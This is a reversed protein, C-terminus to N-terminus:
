QSPFRHGSRLAEEFVAATLAPAFFYGQGFRAGAERVADLQRREEIGEIVAYLDLDTALQLISQVITQHRPNDKLDLTFSRDIKLSNLPLDHLYSLSSYGTGFDDLALKVGIRLLKEFQLWLSQDQDLLVNETIEIQFDAPPFSNEVLAASLLDWFLPDIFQRHSLNFNVCLDRASPFKRKWYGVTECVQRLCAVGIPIILGTEEAISLFVQPPILESKPPRWRLLAEFGIPAGSGLEVIPQYLVQFEQRILGSRLATELNLREVVENRMQQDFIAYSQRGQIKTASLATDADRLVEVSNRYSGEGLAIGIHVSTYIDRDLIHFRRGMAARIQEAIERVRALSQFSLLLIAFEASEHRSVWADRNVSEQLRQAVRVLLEDGAAHGLSDNVLRFADVELLLVAYPKRDLHFDQIAQDLRESFHVRNPLETLPDHRAQHILRDEIRKRETIDVVTGMILLNTAGELRQMSVLAIARSRHDRHLFMWESSDLDLLGLLLNSYREDAWGIEEPAVLERYHRGILEQSEYGLMHAFAQNVYTYSGGENIFVGVHSTEVLSRYRRESQQLAAEARKRESIDVLSGEYFALTGDQHRLARASVEVFLMAGDRRRLHVEVGTVRGEQDLRSNLALRDAPDQFLNAVDQVQEILDQANEYGLMDALAQNATRFRGEPTSQYIGVLSNEFIAQYDRRMRNLARVTKREETLDRITGTSALKGNFYIPGSRVSALVRSVGDKKCLSIEYSSTEWHGAQREQWIAEMRAHDEQAIFHLFSVGEMEGRTYGLMDAYTQNVYLYRGEHTVFVGDQSHEVLVQYRERLMELEQEQEIDQSVDLFRIEVRSDSPVGLSPLVQSSVVVKRRQGSLDVFALGIPGQPAQRLLKWAQAPDVGEGAFWPIECDALWEVLEAQTSARFLHVFAQNMEILLGSQSVECIPEAEGRGPTLRAPTQVHSDKAILHVLLAAEREFILPEPSGVLDWQRGSASTLSTLGGRRGGKRSLARALKQLPNSKFSRGRLADERPTNPSVFEHQIAENFALIKGEITSVVVWGNEHNSQREPTPKTEDGM